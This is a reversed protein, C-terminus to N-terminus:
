LVDEWKPYEDLSKLNQQIEGLSQKMETLWMADIKSIVEPQELPEAWHKMELVQDRLQLLKDARSIM